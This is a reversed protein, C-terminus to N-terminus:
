SRSSRPLCKGDTKKRSTAEEVCDLLHPEQWPRPLLPIGFEELLRIRDSDLTASTLGLIPIGRLRHDAKLSAILDFDSNVSVILMDVPKETVISMAETAHQAWQLSYGYGGLQASLERRSAEDMDLAVIFPQAAIPLRITVLTGREASPPPSVIDLWGEHMAVVQHCFTLGIGSGTAQDGVQYYREMVRHLYESPIGNGEDRVTVALAGGSVRDPHLSVEIDRGGPTYKVANELIHQVAREMMPRDCAVFGSAPPIDAVLRVGKAEAAPRVSEVAARVIRVFPVRARRLAIGDTDIRSLDLIDAVTRRMRKCDEQIMALYKCVPDPLTGVIGRLLNDVACSMAALPTRLEHSTGIIFERKARHHAEVLEIARRLQVETQQHAEVEKQLTQNAMRLKGTRESVLEELHEQYHKLTTEIRQREIAYRIARILLSADPMGKVLYDQAGEKMAQVAVDEDNLHTMLIIPISGTRGRVRRLSELGQSDPLSLDLLVVNFPESLAAMGDALCEAHRLFFPQGSARLFEEVISADAPNDEVLLIRLTDESM